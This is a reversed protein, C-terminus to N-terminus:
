RSCLPGTKSLAPLARVEDPTLERGAVVHCIRKAWEEPRLDIVVASGSQSGATVVLRSGDTSADVGVQKDALQLSYVASESGVRWLEVRNQTGILISGPQQLGTAFKPPPQDAQPLPGLVRRREDVDWLEITSNKREVVLYPSNRQKTAGVVDAGIDLSGVESGTSIDITLVATRGPVVILLQNPDDLPSVQPIGGAPVLGLRALDLRCTISGTRPDRCTVESGIRTVLRGAEDFFLEGQDTEANTPSTVIESVVDLMPLRYVLVRDPSVRHALLSGDPSFVTSAVYRNGPPPVPRPVEAIPNGGEPPTVQLRRGDNSVSVLFLGNPALKTVGGGPDMIGTVGNSRMPVMQITGALNRVLVLGHGREDTFEGIGFEYKQTGTLIGRTRASALDFLQISGGAGSVAVVAGSQNTSFISGCSKFSKSEARRIETGYAVTRAVFTHNDLNARVPTTVCSVLVNGSTIKMHDLRDELLRTQGSLM